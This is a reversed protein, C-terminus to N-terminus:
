NPTLGQLLLQELSCVHVREAMQYSKEVPAVIWAHQANIDDLARWFGRTLNPAKTAKCEIAITDSGRTCVLDMENGAATRFFAYEWEPYACIINEVCYGEWSSGFSPHGLLDDFSALNLLSHLLGSDRFYIKPSKIIRKRINRTFPPLTRLIYTKEFVDLYSRSTHYSIGM